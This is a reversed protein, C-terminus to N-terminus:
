SSQAWLIVVWLLQVVSAIFIGWGVGILTPHNRHQAANLLLFAFILGTVALAAVRLFVDNM